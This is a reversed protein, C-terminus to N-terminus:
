KMEAERGEELQDLEYEVVDLLNKDTHYPFAKYDRYVKTITRIHDLCEYWESIIQALRAKPTRPNAMEKLCSDLSM